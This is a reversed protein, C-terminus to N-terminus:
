QPDKLVAGLAPRPVSIGASIPLVDGLPLGSPGFDFGGGFCQVIVLPFWFIGGWFM